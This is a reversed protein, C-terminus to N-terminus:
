AGCRGWVWLSIGSLILVAALRRLGEGVRHDLAPGDVSIQDLDWEVINGWADVVLDIRGLGRAFATAQVILTRGVVVPSETMVHTHGTVILDIWPATGALDAAERVGFHAVVVVLQRGGRDGIPVARDLAEAPSEIRMWPIMGAPFFEVTSLGIVLVEQSGAVTSVTDAFPKASGGVAITNAGLIPFTAEAALEALRKAGVAFEHNGIAMADYGVSNMWRVTEGGGWVALVPLRFDQWSDGADVLLVQEAEGRVEEIALGLAALRGVRAHLDNTFLVTVQEGRAVLSIAVTVILFFIESKLGGLRPLM